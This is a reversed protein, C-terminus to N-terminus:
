ATVRRALRELNGAFGARSGPLMAADQTAELLAALVRVRRRMFAGRPDPEASFLHRYELWVMETWADFRAPEDGLTALDLAVVTSGAGDRARHSATDEVMACAREVDHAPLAERGAAAQRLLLASLAENVGAAAGAVYVADHFLLALVQARDLALGHAAARAFVDHVHWTAHYHRQPERYRALTADVLDDPVGTAAAAARLRADDPLAIPVFRPRAEGDLGEVTEVFGSLPRTWTRGAADALPRYVVDAEGDAERVAIADIRYLGGKWHQVLSGPSFPVTSADMRRNDRFRRRHAFGCM